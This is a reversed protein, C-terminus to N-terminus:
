INVHLQYQNLMIMSYSFLQWHQFFKLPLIDKYIFNCIFFEGQLIHDSYYIVWNKWNIAIFVLYLIFIFREM